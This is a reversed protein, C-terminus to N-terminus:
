DAIVFVRNANVTLIEVPVNTRYGSRRDITIPGTAGRFNRTARLGRNVAGFGTDGAREVAAFLIRASDYYFSGWVGPTRNFARRYQSVYGRASPMQSAAVVGIFDCRRAEDLTVAATFANDVNGLGMLCEPATGAANLARAIPIGEPFYTSVYILDPATALADAVRAEYHGAPADGRALVPIRTVAVGRATLRTTLRNAMGATFSGKDTDDVLITVRDAGTAAIHRAAIPAIQSNMPQVTAGAGITEDLSTNWVPLVRARRYLPLNEVGVSSNYPGIVFPIGRRIVERAVPKARVAEGRDDARHIRVPRGLVGGRANIQRVALQVGRLQDLGNSAQDGSQPSEVAIVLPEVPRPAPDGNALAPAAIAGLAVATATITTAFGATM